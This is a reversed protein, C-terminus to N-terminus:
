YDILMCIGTIQSNYAVGVGCHTNNKAMAIVGACNTGHSERNGDADSIPFPDDDNGVADIQLSSDQM